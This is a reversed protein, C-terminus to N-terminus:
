QARIAATKLEKLVGYFTKIKKLPSGAWSSKGHIRSSLVVPVTLVKWQHKFAQFLVFADFPIGRPAKELTNLLERSFVKPQANLDYFWVRWFFAVALEYCRSIWWSSLKRKKRVGRVLTPSKASQQKLFATIADKPDCQLDAHTFGIWPASSHKLGELIGGGYGLNKELTLVTFYDGYPGRKEARLVSETEDSSGNNVLILQFKTPDLQYCHAAKVTKQILESLGKAENFCPIVLQFLPTVIRM